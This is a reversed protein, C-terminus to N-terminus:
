LSLYKSVDECLLYINDSSDQLLKLSAFYERLEIKFVLLSPNKNQWKCKHIHYKGMITIINYMRFLEKPLNENGFLIQELKLQTIREMKTELWNMVDQWFLKIVPCSFFLHEITEDEQSCFVCPEVEFGFRKKLMAAAPYYGNIIKFQMEKIKPPIPWKMFKIYKNTIKDDYHRIKINQDFDHFLKCKFIKSICNNNCKKSNLPIQNLQLKPLNIQSKSYHLYNQIM